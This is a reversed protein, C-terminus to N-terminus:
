AATRARLARDALGELEAAVHELAAAYVTPVDEDHLGLEEGAVIRAAASAVGAARNCRDEVTVLLADLAEPGLSPQPVNPDSM